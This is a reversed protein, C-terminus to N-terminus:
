GRVRRADDELCAWLFRHRCFRPNFAALNVALQQAVIAIADARGRVYETTVACAPRTLRARNVAEAIARFHKRTM